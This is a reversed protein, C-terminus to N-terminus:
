QRAAVEVVFETGRVGIVSSPTRVKMADEKHKAIKGSIVALKGHKLSTEFSGEHTTSDFQFHDVTLRSNPGLSLLSNDQFTIGVAGDTGTVVQDTEELGLGLTGPLNKGAREVSVAGHLVKITAIETAQVNANSLVLAIVGLMRWRLTPQRM